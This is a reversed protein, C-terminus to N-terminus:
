QKKNRYIQVEQTKLIKLKNITNKLKKLKLSKIKSIKQYVSNGSNIWNETTICKKYKQRYANKM